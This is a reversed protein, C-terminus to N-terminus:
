KKIQYLNKIYKTLQEGWIIKKILSEFDTVIKKYNEVSKENISSLDFSTKFNKM